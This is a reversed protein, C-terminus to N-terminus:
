QAFGGNCESGFYWPNELQTGNVKQLSPEILVREGLRSSDINKGVDVIYGCVDAGQIRPFSYSEGTWSADNSDNDNKSYWGIRTNIDTNNVAAAKVEILVENDKPKPTTFDNVYELKDFDGHGKLIIAKMTKPITKM